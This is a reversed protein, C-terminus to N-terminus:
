EETYDVETIGLDAAIRKKEHAPINYQNLRITIEKRSVEPFGFQRADASIILTKPGLLDDPLPDPDPHHLGLIKSQEGIAKIMLDLRNLKWAVAIVKNLSECLINRWQNKDIDVQFFNLADQILRYGTAESIDPYKMRLMKVVHRRGKARVSFSCILDHATTLRHWYAQLHAPLKESSGNAVYEKLAHYDELSDKYTQKLATSPEEGSPEEVPEEKGSPNDLLRKLDDVEMSLLSERYAQFNMVSSKAGEALNLRGLATTLLVGKLYRRNLETGTTNIQELFWREHSSPIGMVLAIEEPPTGATSLKDFFELQGESFRIESGNLEFSM